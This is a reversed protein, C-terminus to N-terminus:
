NIKQYANLNSSSYILKFNEPVPRGMPPGIGSGMPPHGTMGKGTKHLPKGGRVGQRAENKQQLLIVNSYQDLGIKDM